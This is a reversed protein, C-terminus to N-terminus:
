PTQSPTPTPKPGNKCDVTKFATQCETKDRWRKQFDKIFSSFATQQNQAALTQKITAKVQNLSQQSAPTISTVEFDYFGFQTKVPGTLKGKKASFVARDLAQELTGKAQPPLTGAQNKSASDISFKKAVTKWSQGSQLAKKAQQAKAFTKTLVIRLGRKEPQSFRAKNKNYYAQVQADSVKDKGKLVKDRIKTSLLGIKVQELIDQQTEGRQKLFKRYDSDKPFNQKKQQEFSQQVEANSVKVGQQSAEGEIWQNSILLQLIQDRLQKYLQDCQTKLQADTQKPQGKTSKSAARKAAICKTYNPPDPVPANATGSSKAAVAMWHDFESKQIAKGDVTAVANGPVGGCAAVAVGLALIACSALVLRVAKTMLLVPLPDNVFSQTRRRRGAAAFRSGPDAM